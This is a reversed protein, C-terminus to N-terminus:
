DQPNPEGSGPEPAPEGGQAQESMKRLVADLLQAAAAFDPNLELAKTLVKSATEFNQMDWLCRSLNYLLNEDNPSLGLAKQYLTLAMDFKGQRRYAIGLRNYVHVLSPDLSLASEYYKESEAAHGAEVLADGVQVSLNTDEPTTQCAQDFFGLAQKLNKLRLELQGMQFLISAKVTNTEKLKKAANVAAALVKLADELRDKGQYIQALALYAQLCLPNHKIVDLYARAAEIEKEQDLLAKALGLAAEEDWRVGLAARFAEEAAQRKSDREAQRGANFHTLFEEEEHDIFPELAKEVAECLTKAKIPQAVVSHVKLDSAKKQLVKDVNDAVLIIPLEARGPERRTMEVLQMGSIPQLKASTIMLDITRERLVELAEDAKKATWVRYFEFPKLYQQQTDLATPIADVLLISMNRWSQKM